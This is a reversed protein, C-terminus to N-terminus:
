QPTTPMYPSGQSGNAGYTTGGYAGSDSGGGYTTGGYAGSGSGSSAGQTPQRWGSWLGNRRQDNTWWRGSFRSGDGDFAIYGSGTLDQPEGPEHWQFELVNGRLQGSFFGIVEQGGREYVWVGMVGGVGRSSDQELKVSGFNSHWLGLAKGGDM